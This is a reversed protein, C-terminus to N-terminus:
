TEPQKLSASMVCQISGVVEGRALWAMVHLPRPLLASLATLHAAALRTLM